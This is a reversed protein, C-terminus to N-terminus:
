ESRLSRVPDGMSARITQFSVTIITIALAGAASLMIVWISVSVRYTFQQLWENLYFWAVPIGIACAVLVMQVFDLSLM